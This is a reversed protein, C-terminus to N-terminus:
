VDGAERHLSREADFGNPYRARLKQVNMELIDNLDYGIAYATVALYWAVDGLERALKERDINHGQFLYKKVMDICEGSEGSLGMVGNVLLEEPNTTGATRLTEKQYETATM